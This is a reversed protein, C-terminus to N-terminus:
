RKGNQVEVKRKKVLVYEPNRPIVRVSNDRFIAIHTSSAAVLLGNYYKSNANNPNFYNVCSSWSEAACGNEIYYDLTKQGFEKGTQFPEILLYYLAIPVMVFVLFAYLINRIGDYFMECSEIFADFRGFIAKYTKKSLPFIGVTRLAVLVIGLLLLIVIVALLGMVINKYPKLIAALWKISIFYSYQWLDVVSRPFTNNDIGFVQLYGLNYSFGAIPLCIAIISVAVLVIGGIKHLADLSKKKKM